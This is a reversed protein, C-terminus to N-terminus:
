LKREGRLLEKCIKLTPLEDPKVMYKSFILSDKVFKEKVEGDEYTLKFSVEGISDFQTFHGNLEDNKYNAEIKM